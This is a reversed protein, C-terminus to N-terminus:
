LGLLELNKSFKALSWPQTGAKNTDLTYKFYRYTEKLTPYYGTKKHKDNAWNAATNLAERRAASRRAVGDFMLKGALTLVGAAAPASVPAAILGAVGALLGQRVGKSHFLDSAFQRMPVYKNIWHYLRAFPTRSQQELITTHGDSDTKVLFKSSANRDFVRRLRQFWSQHTKPQMEAFIEIPGTGTIPNHIDGGIPVVGPRVVLKEDRPTWPRLAARVAKVAMKVQEGPTPATTQRRVDTLPLLAPRPSLSRPRMGVAHASGYEAGRDFRGPQEAGRDFRGPQEAQAIAPIFMLVAFSACPVRALARKASAPTM